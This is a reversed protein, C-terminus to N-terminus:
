TLFFTQAFVLNQFYAVTLNLEEYMKGQRFTCYSSIHDVARHVIPTGRFSHPHLQMFTWRSFTAETCVFLRHCM